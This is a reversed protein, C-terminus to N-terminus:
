MVEVINIPICVSVTRAPRNFEIILNKIVAGGLVVPSDEPAIFIHFEDYEDNVGKFAAMMDIELANEHGEIMSIRTIRDRDDKLVLITGDPDRRIKIGSIILSNIYESYMQPPLHIGGLGPELIIDTEFLKGNISLNSIFKWNNDIVQFKWLFNNDCEGSTEDIKEQTIQASKLNIRIIEFKRMFESDRHITIIGDVDPYDDPKPKILFEEDLEVGSEESLFLRARPPLDPDDLFLVSELATTSLSFESIFKNPYIEFKVM